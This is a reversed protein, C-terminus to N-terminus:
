HPLLPKWVAHNVADYKGGCAQECHASESMIREKTWTLRDTYFSGSRTLVVTVATDECLANFVRCIEVHLVRCLAELIFSSFSLM